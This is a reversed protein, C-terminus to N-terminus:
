VESSFKSIGGVYIAPIKLYSISIDRLMKGINERVHFSDWPDGTIVDWENLELDPQFRSIVDDRRILLVSDTSLCISAEVESYAKLPNTCYIMREKTDVGYVMQHHWADNGFIKLRYSIFYM